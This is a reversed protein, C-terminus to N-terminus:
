RQGGSVNGGKQGIEAKLGEPKDDIFEIAQSVFAAQRIEDESADPNGYSINSEITGSILQGKQPVYGIKERLESQKIKRIDAGSVTITGNNIDYFRLLLQAITSKGAGTPGIIATTQGPYATFSIGDIANAEANPYSFSVNEFKVLGRDSESKFFSVAEDPRPDSIIPETELVEAIRGASVMARPVVVLVMTLLMFAFIVQVAYMMFAMMDGIMLGSAAIHQAGVWIVLIQTGGLIFTMIPGAVGMVRTVFVAIDYIERNVEDFRKIEHNQTSFARIVMLGHLLERAVKNLRDMLGQLQRFRPMVTPIILATFGILVIVALGIIWSMAVSQNIAMIVGGIGMLPAFFLLRASMNTLERIQQVDNTCRTILSASSFTDFEKQSFGEVKIFIDRRLDRAVGAAIRPALYGSGIAALGSLLTVALMVLGRQIIYYQRSINEQVSLIIGNNVIDAMLAPMYLFSMNETILLMFM